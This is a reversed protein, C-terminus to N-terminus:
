LADVLMRGVEFMDGENGSAVSARIADGLTHPTGRYRRLTVAYARTTLHGGLIVAGGENRPGQLKGSILGHQYLCTLTASSKKFADDFNPDVRSPKIRHTQEVGLDVTRPQAHLLAAFVRLVQIDLNSLIDLDNM